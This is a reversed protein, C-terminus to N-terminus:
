EPPRRRARTSPTRLPTARLPPRPAALPSSDADAPSGFEYALARGPLDRMSEYGASSLLVLGADFYHRTFRATNGDTALTPQLGAIVVDVQDTQLADYLGDFGLGVFRVPLGIQEALARGLDVELGIYEGEANVSAFPPRSPDLGVRIEGHPFIETVDPAPRLAASLPM